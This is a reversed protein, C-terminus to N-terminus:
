KEHLSLHLDPLDKWVTREPGTPTGEFNHLHHIASVFSSQYILDPPIISVIDLVLQWIAATYLSPDENCFRIDAALKAGIAETDSVPIALTAKFLAVAAKESNTLNLAEIAAIDVANM